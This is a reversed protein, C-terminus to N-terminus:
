LAPGALCGRDVVVKQRRAHGALNTRAQTVLARRSRTDHEPIPVVQVALPITTAADIVVIV